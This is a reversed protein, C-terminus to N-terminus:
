YPKGQEGTASNGVGPEEDQYFDAKLGILGAVDIAFIDDDDYEAGQPVLTEPLSPDAEEMSELLLAFPVSRFPAESGVLITPAGHENERVEFATVELEGKKPSAIKIFATAKEGTELNQTSLHLQLNKPQIPQGTDPDSITGFEKGEVIKADMIESLGEPGKRDKFESKKFARAM